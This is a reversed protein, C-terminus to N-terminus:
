LSNSLIEEKQGAVTCLISLGCNDCSFIYNNIMKINGKKCKPCPIIGGSKLFEIREQHTKPLDRQKM